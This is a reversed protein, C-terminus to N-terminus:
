KIHYKTQKEYCYYTYYNAVSPSSLNAVSSNAGNRESQEPAM